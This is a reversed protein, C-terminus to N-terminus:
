RSSLTLLLLLLLTLNLFERKEGERQYNKGRHLTKINLKELFNEEVEYLSYHQIFKLYGVSYQFLLLSLAHFIFSHLSNFKVDDVVYITSKEKEKKIFHFYPHNQIIVIIIM